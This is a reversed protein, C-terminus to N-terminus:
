ETPKIWTNGFRTATAAPKSEPHEFEIAGGWGAGAAMAKEKPPAPPQKMKKQQLEQLYLLTKLSNQYQREISNQQRQLAGLAQLKKRETDSMTYPSMAIKGESNIFENRDRLGMVFYASQLSACSIVAEMRALKFRNVAMDEVLQYQSATLPNLDEVLENYLANLAERDEILMVAQRARLGHKLSNLSVTAKGEASRPGTSKQANQRNAQLKKDSITM